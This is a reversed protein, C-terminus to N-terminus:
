YRYTSWRAAPVGLGHSPRSNCSCGVWAEVAAAAWVYHAGVLVVLLLLLLVTHLVVHHIRATIITWHLMVTCLHLVLLLLVMVAVMGVCRVLLLLLLLLMTHRM